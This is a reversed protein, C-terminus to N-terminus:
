RFGTCFHERWQRDDTHRRCRYWCHQGRYRQQWAVNTANLYLGAFSFRNIVLGRITNGGVQFWLGSAGTSGALSGDLQIALVANFGAADTNVSTGPQSYGDVVVPDTIAPLPTLPKITQVGAGPINFKITDTDTSIPTGSVQAQEAASLTAVSLTRNNVLIAERLTLFGDRVNTDLISNVTISGAPTLRDELLEVGPRFRRQQRQSLTRSRRAFPSTWAM